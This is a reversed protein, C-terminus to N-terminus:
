KETSNYIAKFLEGCGLCHYHNPHLESKFLELREHKCTKKNM